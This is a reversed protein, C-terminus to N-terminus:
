NWTNRGVPAEVKYPFDYRLGLMDQRMALYEENRDNQSENRKRHFLSLLIM